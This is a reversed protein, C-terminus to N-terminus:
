VGLNLAPKRFRTDCTRIRGLAGHGSKGQLQQRIDLVRPTRIAKVTLPLRKLVSARISERVVFEGGRSALLGNATAIMEASVVGSYGERAQYELWDEAGPFRAATKHGDRDQPTQDASQHSALASLSKWKPESCHQGKM